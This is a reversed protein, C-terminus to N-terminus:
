RSAAVSRTASAAGRHDGAPRLWARGQPAANRRRRSAWAMSSSSARPRMTTTSIAQEYTALDQQVPQAREQPRRRDGERSCSSACQGRRRLAPQQARVRVSGPPLGSFWLGNYILDAYEQSSSRRSGSRRSADPVAVGARPAGRAPDGGGAGRVDRAVQHRGPPERRPRDPRRRAPRRDREAARAAARRGDQQGDLGVPVGHEFEIEVYEPEDPGQRTPRGSSRGKRRSTGRTKSCARGRRQPRVPEPRHQVPERGHGRRPHQAAAAYAM